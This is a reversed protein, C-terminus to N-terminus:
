PTPTIYPWPTPTIYSPCYGPVTNAYKTRSCYRVKLRTDWYKGDAPIINDEDDVKQISVLGYDSLSSSDNVDVIPLGTQESVEEPTMGEYKPSSSLPMQEIIELAGRTKGEMDIGKM